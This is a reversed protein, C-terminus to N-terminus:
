FFVGKGLFMEVLDSESEVAKFKLASDAAPTFWGELSALKKLQGKTQCNLASSFSLVKEAVVLEDAFFRKSVSCHTTCDRRQNRMM